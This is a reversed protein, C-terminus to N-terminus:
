RHVIELTNSMLKVDLLSREGTQNNDVSNIGTVKTIDGLEKM